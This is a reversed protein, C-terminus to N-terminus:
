KIKKSAIGFWFHRQMATENLSCCFEFSCFFVNLIACVFMYFTFLSWRVCIQMTNEPMRFWNTPQSDSKIRLCHISFSWFRIKRITISRSSFVVTWAFEIAAASVIACVSRLRVMLIKRENNNPNTGNMQACLYVCFKIWIRSWFTSMYWALARMSISINIPHLICVLHKGGAVMQIYTTATEFFFFLSYLFCFDNKYWQKPRKAWQFNIM